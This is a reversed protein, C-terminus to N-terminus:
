DGGEGARIAAVHYMANHSDATDNGELIHRVLSGTILKQLIHMNNSAPM